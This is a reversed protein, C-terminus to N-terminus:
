LRRYIDLSAGSACISINHDTFVFDLIITGVDEQISVKNIDKNNNIIKCMPYITDILNTNRNGIHCWYYHQGKIDCKIIEISPWHSLELEEACEEDIFFKIKM